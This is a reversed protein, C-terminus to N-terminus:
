ILNISKDNWFLDELLHAMNQRFYCNIYLM